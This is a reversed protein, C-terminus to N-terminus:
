VAASDEGQTTESNKVLEEMDAETKANLRLAVEYLRNLVLASKGGLISEGEEDSEFIPVGDEDVMCRCVLKAKANALNVELTMEAGAGIKTLLSQEYDVDASSTIGQIWVDCGWEPVSIKERPLDNAKQIQEKLSM